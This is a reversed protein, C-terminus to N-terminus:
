QKSGTLKSLGFFQYGILVILGGLGITGIWVLWEMTSPFYQFALGPGTFAHALGDLEEQALAPLVLNLKTALGMAAVLAGAIGTLMPQGRGFLLLLGPLIVGLGLHMVWFVWWYQGTLITMLVGSKAPVSAYLGTTYEAWELVLLVGLLVLMVLGLLRAAKATLQNFLLAVVAVLGVGFLAAEVLFLVPTLGSEWLARAGVVGFLAGEAGAFAVAFLFSLWAFRELLKPVAGSRVLWLGVVLIVGYLVYFWSMWGMISTWSTQLMLKWFRFPHGLDLWVNTMGAAFAGLAALIALTALPYYETKRLTFIVAAFAFAGASTGILAVYAAIWLGWPVYSGYNAAAHGGTFRLYIGYAGAATCAIALVWALGVLWNQTQLKNKQAPMSIAAM